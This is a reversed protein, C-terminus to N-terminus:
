SDFLLIPSSPGEVVKESTRRQVNCQERPFLPLHRSPPSYTPAPFAPGPFIEDQKVIIYDNANSEHPLRKLRLHTSESGDSRGKLSNSNDVQIDSYEPLMDIIRQREEAPYERADIDPLADVDSVDVSAQFESAPTTAHSM